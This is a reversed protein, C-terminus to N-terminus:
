SEFALQAVNPPLGLEDVQAAIHSARKQRPTQFWTRPPRAAIEAEHTIMNEAKTAEM